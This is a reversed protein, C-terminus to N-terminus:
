GRIWSVLPNECSFSLYFGYLAGIHLTALVFVNKWIIETRYTEKISNVEPANYSLSLYSALTSNYSNVFVFTALCWIAALFGVLRHGSRYTEGILIFIM